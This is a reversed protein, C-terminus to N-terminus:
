VTKTEAVLERFAGALPVPPKEAQDEMGEKRKRKRRSRCTDCKQAEGAHLEGCFECLRLEPRVLEMVVSPEDGSLGEVALARLEYLEAFEGARHLLDEAGVSLFGIAEDYGVIMVAGAAPKRPDIGRRIEFQATAGEATLNLLKRMGRSDLRSLEFTQRLPLNLVTDEWAEHFVRTAAGVQEHHLLGRVKTELAVGREHNANLDTAPASPKPPM